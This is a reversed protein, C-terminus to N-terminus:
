FECKYTKQEVPHHLSIESSQSTRKNLYHCLYQNPTSKERVKQMEERNKSWLSKERRMKACIFAKINHM